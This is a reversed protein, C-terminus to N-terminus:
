EYALIERVMLRTAKRAPFYSALLSFLIAVGLWLVFGSPTLAYDLTTKLFILGFVDGVVDSLPLALLAALVWSLMGIVLGEIGIMRMLQNNSAGIARMVGIERTRELVQISMTTMLGLGGVIVILSAMLLLLMTLVLFHDEMVKQISYISVIDQVGIGAQALAQELGKAVSRHTERDSNQTVVPISRVLGKTETVEAFYSPHVFARPPGIQRIVGTIRWSAQKSGLRLLVTDGVKLHSQRDMFIHNVVMTKRDERTLWQGEEIRPRLLETELNPAVLDFTNGDTGDEYILSAKTSTWGEMRIVGPVTAVVDKVEEFVVPNTLTINLDYRMADRFVGITKTISAGVNMATIFMAGGIVLTGLTLAMRGKQRFSNRISLLLPRSLRMSRAMLRGLWGKKAHTIDIGYDAMAERATVRSGKWVPWVASVVPTLLGVLILLAYAWFPISADMIKFNLMRAAFDAYARAGAVGAPLAVIVAIIGLLLAGGLYMGALQGRRAGIAKMVGIQRVQRAMTASMLTAVLVTSLILSLSGFAQLLFLLARLQSQHPHHGPEPIDIRKIRHGEKEMQSTISKIVSRIRNKDLPHDAITILIETLATKGFLELTERTVYGYAWGEMWAPAQGPDHASGSIHLTVQPSSPLEVVANEGAGKGVVSLAAREILIDGLGPPWDGAESTLKNIQMSAFDDVVHLFITKWENEAIMIRGRYRGRAEVAGVGPSQKVTKLLTDDVADTVIVASAPNTGFYNADLERVLIAYAFLVASVGIMGIAIAATVLLSRGRNIWLDQLVKKWRLWRVSYPRHHLNSM